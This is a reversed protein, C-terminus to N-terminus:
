EGVAPGFLSALAPPFFQRVRNHPILEVGGSDGPQALLPLLRPTGESFYGNALFPRHVWLDAAYMLRGETLEPPIRFRRHYFWAQDNARPGAAATMLVPNTTSTSKLEALMDAVEVLKAPPVAPDFTFLVMGPANVKGPSHLLRNAQVLAAPMPKGGVRQLAVIREEAVRQLGLPGVVVPTPGACNLQVLGNLDYPSYDPPMAGSPAALTAAFLDFGLDNEGLLHAVSGIKQQGQIWRQLVYDTSTRPPYLNHHMARFQWGWKSLFQPDSGFDGTNSFIVSLTQTEPVYVLADAWIEKDTKWPRLGFMDQLFNLM